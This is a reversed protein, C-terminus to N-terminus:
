RKKRAPSAARPERSGASRRFVRAFIKDINRLQRKLDFAHEIQKAPVRDTINKDHLVLQHFDLDEKWARMAHGQVLRYADERSVGHEVLDLLLQGSFVLGRTSELNAQMRAPYVFMTDILSTTKELLYDVLTTSDPLIVREVSSHSIDREHWLPVNEFAAQANSRVVRALGSIQECTVPNRKHPMASSGKQKESFFEEAERVETRQLHRIETAIKDLTSAIVALTAVYHAHRDRQIVQSSIEAARLGLRACIKEELEPSLHAFTGVAGSFKGVRMGEAAAHFREINRQTESYWNALKFGFTIPEAHVGHTRGIQPTDKFEWARRKLVEALRELDEAIIASAQTILLAQATDVVDNSTLGYHFWRAHPGVIEAVATTFAIVDHRVEAEIEQIRELKFGARERIAEAADKPVLGAEALTETAAVEVTLWTRFRNDESWIRGMEPRTYRPIM